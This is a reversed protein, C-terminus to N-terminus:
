RRVTFYRIIGILMYTWIIIPVSYMKLIIVILISIILFIYRIKNKNWELSQIKLSFLPFPSVLMLSHIITMVILNKLNLILFFATLDYKSLLIPLWAFFIANAPTPLGIFDNSQREDINFKALRVASFLVILFPSSLILIKSLTFDSIEIHNILLYSKLFTFVIFSPALGFSILDALSDLEKGISSTAKLLRASFGDFFDFFVAVFIFIGSWVSYGEITALISLCGSLLNMLTLFNPINNKLIKLFKM